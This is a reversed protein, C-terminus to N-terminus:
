KLLREMLTDLNINSKLQNQHKGQIDTPIKGVYLKKHIDFIKDKQPKLLQQVPSELKQTPIIPDLFSYRNDHGGHGPYGPYGGMMPNQYGHHPPMMGGHMAPPPPMAHHAANPPMYNVPPVYVGPNPQFSSSAIINYSGPPPINRNNDM